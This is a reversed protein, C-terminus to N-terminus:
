CDTQTTGLLGHGLKPLIKATNLKSFHGKFPPSNLFFVM